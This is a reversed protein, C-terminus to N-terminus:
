YTDELKLPRNTVTTVRDFVGHEPYASLLENVVGWGILGTGGFVLAHKNSKTM